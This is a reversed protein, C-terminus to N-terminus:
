EESRMFLTMGDLRRDSTGDVFCPLGRTRKAIVGIHDVHLGTAPVQVQRGFMPRRAVFHTAWPLDAPVAHFYRYYAFLCGYAEIKQQSRRVRRDARAGHDSSDQDEDDDSEADADGVALMTDADHSVLPKLIPDSVHLIAMVRCIDVTGAHTANPIAFTIVGSANIVQATLFVDEQRELPRLVMHEMHDPTPRWLSAGKYLAVARPNYVFEPHCSKGYKKIAAPLALRVKDLVHGALAEAVAPTDLGGVRSWLKFSPLIPDPVAGGGESEVLAPYVCEYFVRRSYTHAVQALWQDGKKNTGAYLDKIRKHAAEHTEM